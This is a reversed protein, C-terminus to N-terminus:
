NTFVKNKVQSTGADDISERRSEGNDVGINLVEDIYEDFDCMREEENDEFHMCDLSDEISESDQCVKMNRLM